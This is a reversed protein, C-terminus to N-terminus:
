NILGYEITVVFLTYQKFVAMSQVVRVWFEARVKCVGVLQATSFVCLDCNTSCFGVISTVRFSTRDM